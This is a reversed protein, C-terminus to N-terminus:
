QVERFCCTLDSSIRLHSELMAHGIISRLGPKALTVYSLFWEVVANNVSLSLCVLAYNALDQFPHKGVPNRYARVGVWFQVIDKPLGNPFVEEEEQWSILLIQRYQAEAEAM